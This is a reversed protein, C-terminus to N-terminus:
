SVVRFLSLVIVYYGSQVHQHIKMTQDRDKCNVFKTFRFEKTRGDSALLLSRTRAPMDKQKESILHGVRKLM